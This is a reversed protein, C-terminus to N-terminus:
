EPVQTFFAADDVPRLVTIAPFKREHAFLQDGKVDYTANSGEIFEAAVYAISQRAQWLYPAPTVIAAVIANCIYFVPALRSFQFIPFVSPFTDFFTADRAEISILDFGFIDYRSFFLRLKM